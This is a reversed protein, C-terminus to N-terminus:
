GCNLFKCYQDENTSNTSKLVNADKSGAKAHVRIVRATVGLLHVVKEDLQGRFVPILILQDRNTFAAYVEVPSFWPNFDQFKSFTGLKECITNTLDFTRIRIM